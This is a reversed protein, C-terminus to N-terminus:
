MLWLTRGQGLIIMETLDILSDPINIAKLAQTLLNIIKIPALAVIIRNKNPNQPPIQSTKIRKPEIKTRKPHTKPENKKRKKPCSDNYTRIM